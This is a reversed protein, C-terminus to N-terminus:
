SISWPFLRKHLWVVIGYLCLSSCVLIILSAFAMPVKFSSTSFLILYGLGKEAAVFEAVVAGIISLTIAVKLASFIYPIAYPMRIQWFERARSARLSRSLEIMEQPVSNLGAATSIVIPFFAILMTIVVRPVMGAGLSVVIIPAIAVIPTSQIVVLWPMLLRSLLRSSVIATALPLAIAIAVAFGTLAVGLTAVIHELWRGAPLSGLSGVIASPSPLIFEPVKFLRCAGEWILVVIFFAFVSIYRELLNRM